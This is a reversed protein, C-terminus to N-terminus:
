FDTLLYVGTLGAAADFWQSRPIKMGMEHYPGKKPFYEGTVVYNLAREYVFYSVLASGLITRALKMKGTDAKGLFYTSVIAGLVGAQEVTRWGHYDLAGHGDGRRGEILRNDGRRQASAWTYGERAGTALGYVLM